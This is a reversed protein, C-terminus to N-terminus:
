RGLLVYPGYDLLIRRGTLGFRKMDPRACFVYDYEAQRGSFDSRNRFIEFDTHLKDMSEYPVTGIVLPSLYMVRRDLWGDEAILRSVSYHFKRDDMYWDRTKMLGSTRYREMLNGHSGYSNLLSCIGLLAASVAAVTSDARAAVTTSIRQTLFAILLLILVLSFLIFRPQQPTHLFWIHWPTLSLVLFLLAPGIRRLDIGLSAAVALLVVTLAYLVFMIHYELFQALSIFPRDRGGEEAIAPTRVQEWDLPKHSAVYTHQRPSHVLPALPNGVQVENKLLVPGIFLVATLCVLSVLRWERRQILYLACATVPLLLQLWVPYKVACSVLFLVAVVTIRRPDAPQFLLSLATFVLYVNVMDVKGSGFLYTLCHPLLLMALLFAATWNPTLLTRATAYALRILLICFAADTFVVAPLGGLGYVQAFLYEAAMPMTTYATLHPNFELGRHYVWEVQPLYFNLGDVNMPPSSLRFVYPLLVLITLVSPFLDAGPWTPLGPTRRYLFYGLYPLAAAHMVNMSLVADPGKMFSSLILFLIHNMGFGMAVAVHHGFDAWGIRIMLLRGMAWLGCVTFLAVVLAALSDSLSLPFPM